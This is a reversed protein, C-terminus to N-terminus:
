HNKASAYVSGNFSVNKNLHILNGDIDFACDERTEEISQSRMSDHCSTCLLMLNKEGISIEPDNLNSETLPIIHHVEWGANGCKECIGRRKMRIHTRANKWAKSQYFLRISKPTEMDM